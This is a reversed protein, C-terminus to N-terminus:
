IRLTDPLPPVLRRRRPAGSRRDLGIGLPFFRARYRYTCGISLTYCIHGGLVIAQIAIEIGRRLLCKMVLFTSFSITITLGESTESEQM